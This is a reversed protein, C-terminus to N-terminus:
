KTQFEYLNTACIPSFGLSKYFTEMQSNIQTGLFLEEIGLEIANLIAANCVARSYGHRRKDKSTGVSFVMGNKIKVDLSTAVISVARSDSYYIFHNEIYRDQPKSIRYANLFSDNLDYGIDYNDFYSEKFVTLFEESWLGPYKKINSGHISNITQAKLDAKMWQTTELLEYKREILFNNNKSNMPVVFAPLAQRKYFYNEWSNTTEVDLLMYPSYSRFYADDVTECFFLSGESTINVEGFGNNALLNLSILDKIEQTCGPDTKM